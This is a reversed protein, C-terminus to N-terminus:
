GKITRKPMSNGARSRYVGDAVNLGNANKRHDSIERWIRYQRGEPDCESVMCAAILNAEVEDTTGDPFEIENSSHDRLPNYFSTDNRDDSKVKRKVKAMLILDGRNSLKVEDGIFKDFSDGETSANETKVM